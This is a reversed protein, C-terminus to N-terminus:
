SQGVARGQYTPAQGDGSTQEDTDRQRVQQRFDRKMIVISAFERGCEKQTDADGDSNLIKRAMAVVMAVLGLRFTTMLVITMLVAMTVISMLM